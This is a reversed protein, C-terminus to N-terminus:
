PRHVHLQMMGPLSKAIVIVREDEHDGAGPLRGEAGAPIQLVRCTEALDAVVVGEADAEVVAGTLAAVRALGVDELRHYSGHVPVREGSPELRRQEGVD